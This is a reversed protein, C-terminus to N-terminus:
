DAARNSFYLAAYRDTLFISLQQNYRLGPFMLNIKKM